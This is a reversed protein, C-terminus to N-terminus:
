PTTPPPHFLNGPIQFSHIDSSVHSIAEDNGAHGVIAFKYTSLDVGANYAAQLADSVLQNDSSATDAGYYTMANPLVYWSSSPAPVTNTQFSLTGYSDENYYNNLNSLLPLIQNPSTTNSKDPFQVTIILTRQPGNVAALPLNTSASEPRAGTRGSLTHGSGFPSILALALFVAAFTSAGM